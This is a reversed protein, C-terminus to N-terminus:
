ISRMRSIRKALQRKYGKNFVENFDYRNRFDEMDDDETKSLVKNNVLNFVISGFDDTQKIGWYDLVSLTMPGFKQMLLDKIGELLEEGDVHRPRQLNRQTHTLAEMVFQYADRKYRSDKICIADIINFLDQDM